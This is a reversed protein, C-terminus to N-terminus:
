GLVNPRPLAHLGAERAVQAWTMRGAFLQTVDAHNTVFSSIDDGHYKTPHPAVRVGALVQADEVWECVATEPGRVMMLVWSAYLGPGLALMDEYFVFSTPVGEMMAPTGAQDRWAAVSSTAARELVQLDYNHASANAINKQFQPNTPEFCEGGKTKCYKSLSWRMLDSRVLVLVRLRGEKALSSEQYAQFKPDNHQFRMLSVAISKTAVNNVWDILRSPEAYDFRESCDAQVCSLRGLADCFAHSGTMGHHAIMILTRAGSLIPAPKAPESKECNLCIFKTAAAYANVRLLLM